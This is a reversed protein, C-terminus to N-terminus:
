LGRSWGVSSSTQTKSKLHEPCCNSFAACVASIARPWQRREFLLPMYKDVIQRCRFRTLMFIPLFCRAHIRIQIRDATHTHARAYLAHFTDVAGKQSGRRRTHRFDCEARERICWCVGGGRCHFFAFSLFSTTSYSLHIKLFFMQKTEVPHSMSRPLLCLARRGHTHASHVRGIAGLTHVELSSATKHACESRGRCHKIVYEAAHGYDPWRMRTM